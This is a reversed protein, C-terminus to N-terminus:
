AYEKEKIFSNKIAKLILKALAFTGKSAYLCGYFLFIALGLAVLATSIGLILLNASTTISLIIGVVICGIAGGVLAIFTAWLSIVVAWLSAYLSIVVAVVSILLSLWIPSGVIILTLNLASVKKKPKINEKIIKSLPIEAVIQSVIEDISGIQEIAEEETLGEEIRDDIM